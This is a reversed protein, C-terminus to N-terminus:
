GGTSFYFFLVSFPFIALYLKYLGLSLLLPSDATSMMAFMPEWHVQTSCLAFGRTQEATFLLWFPYGTQVWM